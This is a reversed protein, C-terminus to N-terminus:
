PAREPAGGDRGTRGRAPLSAYLALIEGAARDIDFLSLARERGAGGMARAADPRALLAELHAALASALELLSRETGGLVGTHHVFLVRRGTM